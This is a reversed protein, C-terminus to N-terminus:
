AAEQPHDSTSCRPPSLRAAAWADLDVPRYVVRRTGANLFLPGDGSWRWKSLSKPAVILGHEEKLYISAKPTSLLKLPTIVHVM